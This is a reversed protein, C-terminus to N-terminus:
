FLVSIKVKEKLKVFLVCKNLKPFIKFANVFHLLNIIVKLFALVSWFQKMTTWRIQVQQKSSQFYPTSNSLKELIDVGQFIRQKHKMPSKKKKSDGRQIRLGWAGWPALYNRFEVVTVMKVVPWDWTETMFDISHM